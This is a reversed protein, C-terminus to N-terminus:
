SKHNKNNIIKNWERLGSIIRIDTSQNPAKIGAKVLVFGIMNLQEKEEKTLTKYIIKKIDEDHKSVEHFNGKLKVTLSM